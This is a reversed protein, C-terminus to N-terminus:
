WPQSDTAAAYNRYNKTFQPTHPSRGLRIPYETRSLAAARPNAATQRHSDSILWFAVLSFNPPMPRHPLLHSAPCTPAWSRPVPM